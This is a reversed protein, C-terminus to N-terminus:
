RRAATQFGYPYRAHCGSCHAVLGLTMVLWSSGEAPVADIRQGDVETVLGPWEPECACPIPPTRKFFM